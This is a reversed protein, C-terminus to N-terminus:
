WEVLEITVRVQQGVDLWQPLKLGALSVALACDPGHNPALELGAVETRVQIDDVTELQKTIDTLTGEYSIQM